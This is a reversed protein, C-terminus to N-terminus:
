FDNNLDCSMLWNSFLIEHNPRNRNGADSYNGPKCDTCVTAATHASFTGASCETCVTSGSDGAFMGTPLFRVIFNLLWYSSM